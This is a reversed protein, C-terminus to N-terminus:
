GELKIDFEDSLTKAPSEVLTPTHFSLLQDFLKKPIVSETSYDLALSAHNEFPKEINMPVISFVFLGILRERHDM